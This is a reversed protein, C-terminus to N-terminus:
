GAMLREYVDRVRRRTDQLPCSTDIVYDAFQLKEAIPVQAALRSLAEARALGDRSLMRRLQIEMPCYALILPGYLRYAGSEILLPVDVIFLAHPFVTREAALRRAIEERVLPHVLRNLWLRAESDAFVRSGLLKRDVDGDPAMVGQGFRERVTGLVEPRRLIEHAILDADIVRAGLEVFFGAVTTKGTAIGGTLGAIM